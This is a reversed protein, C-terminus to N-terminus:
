GLNGVKRIILRNFHNICSSEAAMGSLCVQIDAAELLSFRSQLIRWTIRLKTWEAVLLVMGNISIRKFRPLFFRSTM